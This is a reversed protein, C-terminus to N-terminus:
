FNESIGFKMKPSSNVYELFLILEQTEIKHGFKLASFFHIFFSRLEAKVHFFPVDHIKYANKEVNM